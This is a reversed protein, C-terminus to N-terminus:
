AADVMTSERTRELGQITSMTIIQKTSWECGQLIEARKNVPDIKILVELCSARARRTANRSLCPYVRGDESERENEDM